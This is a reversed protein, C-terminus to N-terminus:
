NEFIALAEGENTSTLVEYDSGLAWRMQKLIHDEDDVLLIKPKVSHAEKRRNNM